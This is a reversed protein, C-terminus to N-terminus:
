ESIRVNVLHYEPSAHTPAKQPGFCLIRDLILKPMLTLEHNRRMWRLLSMHSQYEQHIKNRQLNQLINLSQVLGAERQEPVYVYVKDTEDTCLITSLSAQETHNSGVMIHLKVIFRLIYVHRITGVCPKYLMRNRPM